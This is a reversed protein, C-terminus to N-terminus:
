DTSEALSAEDILSTGMVKGGRIAARMEATWLTSGSNGRIAALMQDIEDSHSRTLSNLSIAKGRYM